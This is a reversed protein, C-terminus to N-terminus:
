PDEDLTGCSCKSEVRTQRRRQSFSFGRQQRKLSLNEAVKRKRPFLFEADSLKRRRRERLYELEKL